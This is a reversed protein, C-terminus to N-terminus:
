PHGQRLEDDRAEVRSRPRDRAMRSIGANAPIVSLTPHPTEVPEVPPAWEDDQAGGPSRPHGHAPQSIGANAPIVALSSM